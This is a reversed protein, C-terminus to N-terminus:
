PKTEAYSEDVAKQAESKKFDLGLNDFTIADIVHGSTDFASIKVRDHVQTVPVEVSIQTAVRFVKDKRDVLVVYFMTDGDVVETGM